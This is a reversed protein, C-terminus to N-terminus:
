SRNHITESLIATKRNKTLNSLNPCPIIKLKQFITSSSLYEDLISKILGVYTMTQQVHDSWKLFYYPHNGVSKVIELKWWTECTAVSRCYNKTESSNRMMNTILWSHEWDFWCIDPAWWSPPCYELLYIPKDIKSEEDLKVPGSM